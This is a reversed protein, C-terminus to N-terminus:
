KRSPFKKNMDFQRHHLQRDHIHMSEQSFATSSAISKVAIIVQSTLIIATAALVIWWVITWFNSRWWTNKLFETETLVRGALIGERNIRVSPQKPDPSEGAEGFGYTPLSELIHRASGQIRKKEEETIFKERVCHTLADKVHNIGIFSGLHQHHVSAGWVLVAKVGSWLTKEGKESEFEVLQQLIDLKKFSTPTFPLNM